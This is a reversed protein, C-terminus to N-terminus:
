NKLIKLILDYFEPHRTIDLMEGHLVEIGSCTGSLIHNEASKLFASEESVIGDGTRNNDMKCGTSFINYVKETDKDNLKNLFLSGSEMDRCELSAGFMPCYKAVNGEVGNNPVNVLVLKEISSNGFLQIYRRAVLGGMSHAIIIIKDQSTEYKVNEIIDRIRIAYTEISESKTQVPIYTGKMKFVDFYYSARFTVPLGALGLLGARERKATSLSIEGSNIYGNEELKKQLESFVNLSYFASVGKNFDHGHLFLVPYATKNIRCESCKGFACCEAKPEDVIFRHKEGLPSFAIKEIAFFITENVKSTTENGYDRASFNELSANLIRFAIKEKEMPNTENNFLLINRSFENIIASLEAAHTENLEVEKLAEIKKKKLSINEVLSNYFYADSNATEDLNLFEAQLSASANELLLGSSSIAQFDQKNWLTLTKGLLESAYKVNLRAEHLEKGFDAASFISSYKQIESALAEISSNTYAFLTAADEIRSKLANKITKEDESLGYEVTLLSSRATLIGKTHCIFSGTTQCAISFRYLSQGTGLSTGEIAYQKTRILPSMAKISENEISKNRSIDFFVSDCAIRCLPNAIVKVNFEITENAGHVLFIDQKSSDLSLSIDNGIIFRIYLILQVLLLALIMAGILYVFAHLFKHKKYAKVSEQVIGKKEGRKM